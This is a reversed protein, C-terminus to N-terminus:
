SCNSSDEALQKLELKLAKINQIVNVNEATYHPKEMENKVQQNQATHLKNTNEKRLRHVEELLEDVEEELEFVTNEREKRLTLENLRQELQRIKVNKTISEEELSSHERSLRELDEEVAKSREGRELCEQRSDEIKKVITYNHSKTMHIM